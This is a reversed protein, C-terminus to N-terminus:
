EMRRSLPWGRRRYWGPGALPISLVPRWSPSAWAVPMAGEALPSRDMPSRWGLIIGLPHIAVGRKRRSSISRRGGQGSCPCYPAGLHLPQVGGLSFRGRPIYGDPFFSGARLHDVKTSTALPSCRRRPRAHVAWPLGARPFAGRAFSLAKMAQCPPRCSGGSSLAWPISCGGAGQDLHVSQVGGPPCGPWPIAWSSFAGGPFVAVPIFSARVAAFVAWPFFLVRPWPPGRGFTSCGWPSFGLAFFLCGAVRVPVGRSLAWRSM